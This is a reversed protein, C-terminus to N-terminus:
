CQSVNIFKGDNFKGVVTHHSKVLRYELVDYMGFEYVVYFTGTYKKSHALAFEYVDNWVTYSITNLKKINM